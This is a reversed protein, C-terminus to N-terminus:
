ATTSVKKKLDVQAKPPMRGIIEMVADSSKGKISFHTYGCDRGKGCSYPDGNSHLASLQSGIFGTCPRATTANKTPTIITPSPTKITVTKIAASKKYQLREMRTRFYQEEQIRSSPDALEVSLSQLLSSLYTACEEPNTPPAEESTSSGKVSRVVRFFKRLRVEISYKLYDASVLEMPRLVGELQEIFPDFSSEFHDSFVIQMIVQLHKLAVVLRRNHDRCVAPCTSIKDGTIFDDLTLTPEKGEVLVQGVLLLKLKAPDCMLDLTEVRDFIGCSRFAALRQSGRTNGQERLMNLYQDAQLVLDTRM